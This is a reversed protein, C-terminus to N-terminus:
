SCISAFMRWASAAAEQDFGFLDFNTIPSCDRPNDANPLGFAGPL